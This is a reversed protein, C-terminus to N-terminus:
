DPRIMGNQVVKQYQRTTPLQAFIRMLHFDKGPDNDPRRRPSPYFLDGGGSNTRNGGSLSKTQSGVAQVKDPRYLM